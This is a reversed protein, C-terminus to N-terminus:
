CADAQEQAARSYRALFAPHALVEASPGCLVVQAQRDLFVIKDAFRRVVSLHHSVMLVTLGHDARLGSILEMTQLEAVEDMAATPEDLVALRPRGALLRAMLVRQKQGESLASFSRRALQEAGLQALAWAVTRRAEAGLWPRLFSRGREVGLAVVDVARLPALPDLKIRQPIYGMPLPTVCSSIRGGVPPQLGALTRFWTTKGAGNRGVVACLEGHRLTFDMPPLLAQGGHGVLLGHCRLLPGGQRTASTM